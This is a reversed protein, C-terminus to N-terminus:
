QNFPRCHVLWGGPVVDMDIILYAESLAPCGGHPRVPVAFRIVEIMM